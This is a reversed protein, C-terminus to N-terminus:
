NCPKAAFIIVHLSTNVSKITVPVTQATEMSVMKVRATILDTHIEASLMLM